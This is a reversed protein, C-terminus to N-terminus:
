LSIADSRECHCLWRRSSFGRASLEAQRVDEDNDRFCLHKRFIRINGPRKYEGVNM